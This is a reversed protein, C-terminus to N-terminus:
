SERSTIPDAFVSQHAYEARAGDYFPVSLGMCQHSLRDPSVCHAKHHYFMPHIEENKSRHRNILWCGVAMKFALNIICLSCQGEILM